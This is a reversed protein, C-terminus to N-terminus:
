FEGKIIFSIIEAVVAFLVMVLLLATVNAPLGVANAISSIFTTILNFTQGILQAAQFGITSITFSFGLFITTDLQEASTVNIIQEAIIATQNAQQLVEMTSNDYEEIGAGTYLDRQYLLFSTTILAVILLGQIVASPKLKGM